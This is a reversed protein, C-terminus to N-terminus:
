DFGTQEVHRQILHEHIGFVPGMRMKMKNCRRYRQLISALASAVGVIAAAAIRVVVEVCVVNFLRSNTLFSEPKM